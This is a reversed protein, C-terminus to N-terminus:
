SDTPSTVRGLLDILREYHTEPSYEERSRKLAAQGLRRALPEDDLLRRAARRLDASDGPTFTLGTAGDGVMETLSGIRSAIVAKGYGFSELVSNPFNDYWESPVITARCGRLYPAIEGFPKYGLFEIRHSRGDLSRKLEDALSDASTGIIKLKMDTDAFAEVLTRLGKQESIRGVYVFYDGYTVDGEEVRERPNFFTPIHNLKSPAIGYEELKKLTFGSPVVFADVMRTVGIKDHFKKAGLKVLSQALSGHVCRQRVCSWSRGKLCDECVRGHSFFLASPCMYQFDSIRHVVPICRKRAAGIFSPSIKNHYQLAYVVDPKFDDLFDSFKRRAEPSWYMRAFSKVIRWPTMRSGDFYVDDGVSSIFYRSYPSPLNRSNAVSFVATVHGERELIEKINFLYREPGDGEFFRYHVIAIKMVDTQLGCFYM